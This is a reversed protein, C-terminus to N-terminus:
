RFAEAANRRRSERAEAWTVYVPWRLPLAVREFMGRWYWRGSDHDWFRPHSVRADVTWAWDDPRWWREDGYGGAEVFAMFQANTVNHADISFQPVHVQHVPLENDWAFVADEDSTGLTAIGEPIEVRATEIDTGVKAGPGPSPQPTENL